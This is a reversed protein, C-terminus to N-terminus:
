AAAREAELLDAVAPAAVDITPRGEPVGPRGHKPWAEDHIRAWAVDPRLEECTVRGDTAREIAPCRDAPVRAGASFWQSVAAKTVGLAVAIGTRNILMHRM